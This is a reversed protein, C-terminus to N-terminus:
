ALANRAFFGYIVGGHSLLMTQESTAYIASFLYSLGYLRWEVVKVSKTGNPM